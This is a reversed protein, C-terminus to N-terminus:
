YQRINGNVKREKSPKPLMQCYMSFAEDVQAPRILFHEPVKLCTRIAELSIIETGADCPFGHSLLQLYRMDEQIAEPLIINSM